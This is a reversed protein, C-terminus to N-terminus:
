EKVGRKEKVFKEKIDEAIDDERVFKKIINNM